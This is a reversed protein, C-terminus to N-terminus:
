AQFDNMFQQQTTPDWQGEGCGSAPMDGSSVKNFIPQWQSQVTAPDWLDLHGQSYSLMHARYCPTFYPKITSAFGISVTV